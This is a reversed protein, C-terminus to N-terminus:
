KLNFNEKHTVTPMVFVDGNSYDASYTVIAYGNNTVLISIHIPIFLIKINKVLKLAFKIIFKIMLGFTM